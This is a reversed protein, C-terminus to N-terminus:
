GFGPTGMNQTLCRYMRGKGAPPSICSLSHVTPIAAGLLHAAAAHAWGAPVLWSFTCGGVREGPEVDKCFVAAEESCAAQLRPQLRTDRAQLTM